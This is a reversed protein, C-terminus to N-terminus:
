YFRRYRRKKTRREIEEHLSAIKAQIRAIIFSPSRDEMEEALEQISSRLKHQLAAIAPDSSVEEYVRSLEQPIVVEPVVTEVIQPEIEVPKTSPGPVPYGAAELDRHAITLATQIKKNVAVIDQNQQYAALQLDRLDDTVEDITQSIVNRADLLARDSGRTTQIIEEAAGLAPAVHGRLDDVEHRRALGQVLETLQNNAEVINSQTQRLRDQLSSVQARDSAITQQLLILHELTEELGSRTRRYSAAKDVDGYAYASSELSRLAKISDYIVIAQHHIAAEPLEVSPMYSIKEPSMVSRLVALQERLLEIKLPAAKFYSYDDIAEVLSREERQLQGLTM